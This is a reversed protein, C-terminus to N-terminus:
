NHYYALNFKTVLRTQLENSKIASAKIMKKKDKAPLNFFNKTTRTKKSFLEGINLM